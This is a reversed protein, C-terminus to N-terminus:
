DLPPDSAMAPRSEATVRIVATEDTFFSRMGEGWRQPSATILYHEKDIRLYHFEYGNKVVPEQLFTPDLLMAHEPTAEQNEQGSLVQLNAPYGEDPYMTVYTVMSTNMTRLISAAAADAPVESPEAKALLQEELDTKAWHGARQIRWEGGELHMGVFFTETHRESKAEIEVLADLGSTYTNRIAIFTKEKGEKEELVWGGDDGRTLKGGERQLNKSPLVKETFAAKERAPLKLISDEVKVPLHKLVTEIKDTTVLEELAEQPSSQAKAPIMACLLFFIVCCSSKVRM